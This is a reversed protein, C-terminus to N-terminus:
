VKYLVEVSIPNIKPNKVYHQWCNNRIKEKGKIFENMRKVQYPDNPVPQQKFIADLLCKESITQECQTNANLTFERSLDWKVQDKNSTIKEESQKAQQKKKEVGLHLVLSVFLYVISNRANWGKCSKGENACSYKKMEKEM